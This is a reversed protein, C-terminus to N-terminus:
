RARETFSSAQTMIDDEFLKKEDETAKIYKKAVWPEWNNSFVRLTIAPLGIAARRAYGNQVKVHFAARLAGRAFEKDSLKVQVSM